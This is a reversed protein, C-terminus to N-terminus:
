IIHNTLTHTFKIIETASNVIRYTNKNNINNDLDNSFVNIVENITKKKKNNNKKMIKMSKISTTQKEKQNILQEKINM